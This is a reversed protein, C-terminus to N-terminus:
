VIIRSFRDYVEDENPISSSKYEAEILKSFTDLWKSRLAWSPQNNLNVKCMEDM